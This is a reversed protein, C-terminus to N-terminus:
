DIELFLCINLKGSREYLLKQAKKKHLNPNLGAECTNTNSLFFSCDECSYIIKERNFVAPNIPEKKFSKKIKPM